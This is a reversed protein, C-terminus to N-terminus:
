RNASEEKCAIMLLRAFDEEINLPNDHLENLGIGVSGMGDRPRLVSAEPDCVCKM